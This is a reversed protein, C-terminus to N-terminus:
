NTTAIGLTTGEEPSVSGAAVPGTTAVGSLSLSTITGEGDLTPTLTADPFELHSTPVACGEKYENHITLDEAPPRPTVTITENETLDLDWPTNATHKEIQCGVFVGKGVCETTTPQFSTVEGKNPGEAIVKVTVQCGFTNEGGAFFELFGEFPKEATKEGNGVHMHRDTWTVEASASAPIAFALAGLALSALITIKRM